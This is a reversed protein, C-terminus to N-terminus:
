THERSPPDDRFVEDEQLEEELTQIAVQYANLEGLAIDRESSSRSEDAARESAGARLKEIHELARRPGNM